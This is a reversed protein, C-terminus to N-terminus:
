TSMAQWAGQGYIWGHPEGPSWDINTVTSGGVYHGGSPPNDSYRSMESGLDLFDEQSGSKTIHSNIALIHVFDGAVTGSGAPYIFLKTTADPTFGKLIFQLTAIGDDDTEINEEDIDVIHSLTSLTARFKKTPSNFVITVAIDFEVGAETTLNTTIHGENANAEILMNNPEIPSNLHHILITKTSNVETVSLGGLFNYAFNSPQSKPYGKMFRSKIFYEGSWSTPNAYGLTRIHDVRSGTCTEMGHVQSNNAVVAINPTTHLQLNSKDCYFKKTVGGNVLVSNLTIDATSAYMQLFKSDEFYGGTIAVETQGLNPNEGVRLAITNAEYDNATLVISTGRVYLGYPKDEIYAGSFNDLDLLSEDIRGNQYILSNQINIINSQINAGRYNNQIICNDMFFWGLLNTFVGQEFYEIHVDKFKFNGHFGAQGSSVIGITGATPPTTLTGDPLAAGLGDGVLSLHEITVNNTKENISHNGMEIGNCGVFCITSGQQDPAPSDISTSLEGSLRFGYTWSIRLEKTSKYVGRPIIVNSNPFALLTNEIAITDDTGTQTLRDYDGVAGFDKITPKLKMNQQLQLGTVPLDIFRGGDDIGTNAAVIKFLLVGSNHGAGYDDVSIRKGIPFSIDSSQADAVTPFNYTQSIDNILNEHTIGSQVAFFRADDDGTFTGSTTFPLASPLPAYIAGAEDITKVHDNATFSIGAAYVVPVAYGMKKLRGQVTDTAEGFRNISQDILAGGSEAGARSTAVEGLTTADTKADILNQPTIQNECTM